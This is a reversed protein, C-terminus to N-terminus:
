TMSHRAHPAMEHWAACVALQVKTSTGPVDLAAIIASVGGRLQLRECIRSRRRQGHANDSSRLAPSIPRLALLVTALRAAQHHPGRPLPAM